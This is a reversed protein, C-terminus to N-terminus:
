AQVPNSGMVEAIGICHEVSQAILGDPLQDCPSNTGFPEHTYSRHDVMFEYECNKNSQLPSGQLGKFLNRLNQGHGQLNCYIEYNEYSREIRSM